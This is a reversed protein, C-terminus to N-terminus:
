GADRRLRGATRRQGSVPDVGLSNTRRVSRCITRRNHRRNVTTTPTTIPAKTADVPTADAPTSGLQYEKTFFPSVPLQRPDLLSM